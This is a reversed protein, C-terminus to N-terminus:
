CDSCDPFLTTFELADCEPYHDRILRASMGAARCLAIADTDTERIVIAPRNFSLKELLRGILARRAAPTGFLKLVQLRGRERRYIAAGTITEGDDAVMGITNRNALHELYDCESWAAPHDAHYYREDLRVVATLDRRIMWRVYLPTQTATM